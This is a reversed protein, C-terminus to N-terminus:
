KREAIHLQQQQVVLDNVADADLVLQGAFYIKGNFADGGVDDDIRITPLAYTKPTCTWYKKPRRSIKKVWSHSADRRLQSHAKISYHSCSVEM